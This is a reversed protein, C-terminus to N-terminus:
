KLLTAIKRYALIYLLTETGSLFTQPRATKSINDVFNADM